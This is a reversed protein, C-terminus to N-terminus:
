QNLAKSLKNKSEEIIDKIKDQVVSFDINEHTIDRNYKIKRSEEDTINLLTDLRSNMNSKKSLVFREFVWFQTEFINSFVVAHFSDTFVIEAHKILSLFGNLDIDYLQIDGFKLDCARVKGEVHPLFVVKLGHKKAYDTICKRQYSSEGLLYAFLYKEEIKRSSALRNWEDRSLLLTPDVVVDVNRNLLKQLYEKASYERVSIWLYKELESKMFEGYEDPLDTVTISSAYSFCKKGRPLFSFVYPPQLVGPKWVQDSGSIFCDYIDMCEVVTNENYVKSHPIMERSKAFAMKRLDLYKQLKTHYCKNALKNSLKLYLKQPLYEMHDKCYQLVGKKKLEEKKGVIRVPTRKYSIMETDYGLDAIYKCLAYSQAIGGYNDNNYYLTIIGVKGM